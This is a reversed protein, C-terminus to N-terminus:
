KAILEKYTIKNSANKLSIDFRQNDDLRRTNYRYSFENCYRHLHKASTQHYVGYVGRKLLSWFNEIGNNHFGGRVYENNKHNIVVHAFKKDLGNYAGWEDSVILSGEKVLNEIIPKLTTGKTDPVVVTHVRNGNTVMGFVPTKDKTSRGQSEKVKKDDHRNKNKGGMFTEDVQIFGSFKVDSQKNFAHRIRHEMFWASKQTIGLDKGLQISSVGKKHNAFIYIAVFWKRLGVHTGEFMTGITVTFRERCDKCKRQGKFVGKTKIEYHDNRKSGCHPCVPEGNWLMTELYERCAEDTPLAELMQYFTKFEAVLNSNKM